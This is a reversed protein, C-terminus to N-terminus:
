LRAEPPLLQCVEQCGTGLSNPNRKKSSAPGRFCTSSETCGAAASKLEAWNKHGAELAIIEQALALNLKLALVESDTLPRYREIQRVRGGVSYDGQRHWRLLLKAQKRYTEITAV